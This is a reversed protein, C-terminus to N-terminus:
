HYKCNRKKDANYVKAYALCKDNIVPSYKYDFSISTPRSEHQIGLTYTDTNKDFTGTFLYGAYATGNDRTYTYVEDRSWTGSVKKNYFALTSIEVANADKSSDATPVTGSCWRWWVGYGVGTGWGTASEGGKTTRENRTNWGPLYYCYLPRSWSGNGGNIEKKNWVSEFNGNELQEASEMTVQQSNTCIISGFRSRITYQNNAVLGKIVTKGNDNIAQIWNIGDASAEYVINALVKETMEPKSSMNAATMPTIYIFTSWVDGEMQEPLTFSPLDPNCNLTYRNAVLVDKLEWSNSKAENLTNTGSLTLTYDKGAPVFFDANNPIEQISTGDSIEIKYTDYHELLNDAIAPHVIACSLKVSLSKATETATTIRFEETAAYLYPATGMNETGYSAELRYFGEDLVLSTFEGTQNYVVEGTQTDTVKYTLESATPATFTSTARTVTEASAEASIDVDKLVLRGKGKYSPQLVDEQCSAFGLFLCLIFIYRMGNRM